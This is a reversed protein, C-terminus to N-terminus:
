TETKCANGKAPNQNTLIKNARTADENDLVM